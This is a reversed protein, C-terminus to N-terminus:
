RLSCLRVSIVACPASVRAAAEYALAAAAPRREGELQQAAQLPLAHSCYPNDQVPVLSCSAELAAMDDACLWPCEPHSGSSSDTLRGGESSVCMLLLRPLYVRTM